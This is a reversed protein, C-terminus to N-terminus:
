YYEEYEFTILLDILGDHNYDGKDINLKLYNGTIVSAIKGENM